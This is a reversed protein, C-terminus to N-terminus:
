ELKIVYIHIIHYNKKTVARSLFLLLTFFAWFSRTRRSPDKPSVVNARTDDRRITAYAFLDGARKLLQARPLYRAVHVPFTRKRTLRGGSTQRAIIGTFWGLDEGKFSLYPRASPPQCADTAPRRYYYYYYYSCYRYCCCYVRQRARTTHLSFLKGPRVLTLATTNPLYASHGNKPHEPM